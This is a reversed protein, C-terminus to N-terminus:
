GRRGGRNERDMEQWWRSSGIPYADPDHVSYGGGPRRLRRSGEYWRCHRVGKRWWCRRFAAQEAIAHDEAAAKLGTSATGIPAASATTSAAGLWLGAAAAAGLLGHTARMDEEKKEEM